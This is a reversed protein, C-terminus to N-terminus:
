KRYRKMKAIRSVEASESRMKSYTRCARFEEDIKREAEIKAKEEEHKKERYWNGPCIGHCNVPEIARDPCGKCSIYKRVEKIIPILKDAASWQKNGRLDQELDELMQLLKKM